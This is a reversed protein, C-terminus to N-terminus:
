DSVQQGHTLLPIPQQSEHRSSSSLDTDDGQWQRRAKSKGQAYNFENEIDDFEEEEDDGEVRPSGLIIVFKNVKTGLFGKYSHTECFHM